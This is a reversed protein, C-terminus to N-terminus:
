RKCKFQKQCGASPDESSMTVKRGTQSRYICMTVGDVVEVKKLRCKELVHRPNETSGKSSYTKAAALADTSVVMGAITGGMALVVTLIMIRAYQFRINSM